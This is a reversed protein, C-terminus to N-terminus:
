QRQSAADLLKQEDIAVAAMEMEVDEMLANVHADDVAMCGEQEADYFTNQVVEDQEEEEDYEEEDEEEEESDVDEDLEAVTRVVPGNNLAEQTVDVAAVIEEDEDDYVFRTHKGQFVPLGKAVNEEDQFFESRAGIEPQARVAANLREVEQTTFEVAQREFEAASIQQAYQTPPAASADDMAHDADM